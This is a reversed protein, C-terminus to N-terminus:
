AEEILIIYEKKIIINTNKKLFGGQIKCYNEDVDLLIGTYNASKVGYMNDGALSVLINVKKNLFEKEM